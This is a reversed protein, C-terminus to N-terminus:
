FIKRCNNDQQVIEFFSRIDSVINGRVIVGAEIAERLSYNTMNASGIFAQEGDAVVAKAHLRGAGGGYDYVDLLNPVGENEITNQLSEIHEGNGDPDDTDRTLIKVRVNRDTARALRSVLHDVGFRTLFPTVVLIEKESNDILQQFRPMLEPDAGEFDPPVTYTFEIDTLGDSALIKRQNSDSAKLFRDIFEIFGLAETRNILVTHDTASPYEAIGFDATWDLLRIAAKEPIGFEEALEVPELTEDTATAYTLFTGLERPDIGHREVENVFSTLEQLDPYDTM